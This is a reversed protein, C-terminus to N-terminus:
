MTMLWGRHIDLPDPRQTESIQAQTRRNKQKPKGTNHKATPLSNPKPNPTRISKPQHKPKNTPNHNHHIAM